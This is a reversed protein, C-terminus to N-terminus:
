GTEGLVFRVVRGYVSEGLVSRDYNMEEERQLDSDLSGVDSLESDSGETDSGAGLQSVGSEDESDAVGGGPPVFKWQFIANDAGGLSIVHSENYTFRVNTM